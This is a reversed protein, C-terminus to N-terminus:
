AKEESYQHESNSHQQSKEKKKILAEDKAKVLNAKWEPYDKPAMSSCCAYLSVETIKLCCLPVAHM